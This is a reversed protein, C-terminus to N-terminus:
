VIDVIGFPLDYRYAIPIGFIEGNYRKNNRFYVDHEVYHVRYRSEIADATPENMVIYNPCEGNIMEFMHTKYLLEDLNFKSEVLNVKM